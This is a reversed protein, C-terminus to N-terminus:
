REEDSESVRSFSLTGLIQRAEATQQWGIHIELGHPASVYSVTRDDLRLQFLFAILLNFCQMLKLILLSAPQCM